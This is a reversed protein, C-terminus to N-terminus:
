KLELLKIFMDWKPHYDGEAVRASSEKVWEQHGSGLEGFALIKESIRKITRELPSVSRSIETQKHSILLEAQYRQYTTLSWVHDFNNIDRHHKCFLCGAPNICNPDLGDEFLSQPQDTETRACSGPGPATLSRGRENNFKTIELAARQHHPTEYISLLTTEAHQAMEAVILTDRSRRILWNIRTKRLERPGFFKTGTALCRTRVRGFGPLSKVSPYKPSRLPFLREDESAPIMVNLWAIYNDFLVRYESFIEFEVERGARAKYTRKVLYGENHSTYRFDGRKIKEVQALNTGTQAIFILMEAEIRLNILPHRTRWSHDNQWSARRDLLSKLYYPHNRASTTSLVESEPKLGSWEELKNDDKIHITVPLSGYINEKTLANTIALLFAGFEFTATLHQKDAKSGLVRKKRIGKKVRSRKALGEIGLVEEVLIGVSSALSYASRPTIDKQIRSRHLLHDTWEIFKVTLNDLHYDYNHDDGWSYFSRLSHIRGKITHRSVGSHLKAYLTEHFKIVVPLRVIRQPGFKNERINKMVQRINSKAGGIYLLPMLNWPTEGTGYNVNLLSLDPTM